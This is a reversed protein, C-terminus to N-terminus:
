IVQLYFIYSTEAYLYNIAMQNMMDLHIVITALM